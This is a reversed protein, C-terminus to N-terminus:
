AAVKALILSEPCGLLQATRRLKAPTLGRTGNVIESMHGKSIGLQEALQAQTAGSVKIAWALSEPDHTLPSKRRPRATQEGM